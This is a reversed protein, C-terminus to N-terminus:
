RGTLGEAGHCVLAAAMDALDEVPLTKGDAIWARYMALVSNSQWAYFVHWSEPSWGEPITEAHEGSADDQVEAQVRDWAPDCTIADYLADQEAGFRFFERTIEELDEPM